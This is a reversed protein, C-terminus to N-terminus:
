YVRGSSQDVAGGAQLAAYFADRDGAKEADALAANMEESNLPNLQEPTPHATGTRTETERLAAYFDAPTQNLDIKDVEAQVNDINPETSASPKTTPAEGAPTDSAKSAALEAALRENEARLAAMELWPALDERDQDTYQTV